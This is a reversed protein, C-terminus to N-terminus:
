IILSSAGAVTGVAGSGIATLPSISLFNLFGVIIGLVAYIIGRVVGTLASPLVSNVVDAVQASAGIFFIVAVIFLKM